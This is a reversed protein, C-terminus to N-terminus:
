DKLNGLRPVREVEDRYINIRGEIQDSPCMVCDLDGKTITM